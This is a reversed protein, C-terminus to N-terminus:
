ILFWRGLNSRRGLARAPPRASVPPGPADAVSPHESVLRAWRWPVRASVFLSPRM